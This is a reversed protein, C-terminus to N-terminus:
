GNNKIVELNQQLSSYRVVIAHSLPQGAGGDVAGMNGMQWPGYVIPFSMLATPHSPKWFTNNPFISFPISDAIPLNSWSPSPIEMSWESLLSWVSSDACPFTDMRMQIFFYLSPHRGQFYYLATLFAFSFGVWGNRRIIGSDTFRKKTIFM